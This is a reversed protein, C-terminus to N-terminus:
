ESVEVGLSKLREQVATTSLCSRHSIECLGLGSDSWSKIKALQKERSWLRIDVCGDSMKANKYKVIWKLMQEDSVQFVKSAELISIKNNLVLDRIRIFQAMDSPILDFGDKIMKLVAGWLVM